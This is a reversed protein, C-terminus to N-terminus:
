LLEELWASFERDIAEPDEVQQTSAPPAPESLIETCSIEVNSKM